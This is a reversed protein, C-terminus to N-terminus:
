CWSKFSDYEDRSQGLDALTEASLSPMEGSAEGAKDVLLNSSSWVEDMLGKLEAKHGPHEVGQWTEEALHIRLHM